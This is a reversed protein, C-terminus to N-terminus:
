FTADKYSKLIVLCLLGRFDFSKRPKYVKLQKLVTHFRLKHELSKGIKKAKIFGSIIFGPKNWLKKQSQPAPV